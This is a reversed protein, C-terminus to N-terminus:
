DLPAPAPARARSASVPGCVPFLRVSRRARQPARAPNRAGLFLSAAPGPSSPASTAKLLLPQAGYAGVAARCPEAQAIPLSGVRHTGGDGRALVRVNRM